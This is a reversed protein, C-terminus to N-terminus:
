SKDLPFPEVQKDSICRLNSFVLWSELESMLVITAVALVHSRAMVLCINAHIVAALSPTPLLLVRRLRLGLVRGSKFTSASGSKSKSSSM